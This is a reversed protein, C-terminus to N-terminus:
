IMTGAALPDPPFAAAPAWAEPKKPDAGARALLVADGALLLWGAVLDPEELLPKKPDVGERLLEGALLLGGALLDAGEVLPKKPDAGTGGRLLLLGALALEGTVLADPEAGGEPPKKPEAGAEEGAM